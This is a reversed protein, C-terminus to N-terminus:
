EHAVIAIIENASQDSMWILNDNGTLAYNVFYDTHLAPLAFTNDTAAATPITLIGVVGFDVLTKGLAEEDAADWKYMVDLYVNPSSLNTAGQATALFTINDMTNCNVDCGSIDVEIWTWADASCAITSTYSQDTGDSDDITLAFDGATIAEDSFMWFGISENGSLDDQAGAALTVGDDTVVTTFAILLSKAGVRYHATSDSIAVNTGADAETAEGVPTDDMYSATETTGNTGTALDVMVIASLGIFQSKAAKDGGTADNTIVADGNVELDGAVGLDNDGDATDYIGSGIDVLGGDLQVLDNTQTTHGTVALQVEDSDGDIDAADNVDLLGEITAVDAVTLDDTSTLQEASVAGTITADRGVTLDDLASIDNQSTIKYTAYLWAVQTKGVGQAGIGAPPEPLPYKVGLYGAFLVALVLVIYGLYKKDTIKM